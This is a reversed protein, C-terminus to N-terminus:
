NSAGGRSAMGNVSAASMAESRGLRIVGGPPGLLAAQRPAWNL